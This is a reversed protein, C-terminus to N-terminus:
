TDAKGLWALNFKHFASYKMKPVPRPSLPEFVQHANRFAGALGTEQATMLALPPSIARLVAATLM